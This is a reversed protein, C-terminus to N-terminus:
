VAQEVPMLVSLYAMSDPAPRTTVRRESVAKRHRAVVAAADLEVALAKARAILGRDGVGDLIAPDSCLRRDVIGRDAASLCATERVLLTARWENLRGTQLMALTHPMEHVLAQAFGLHRGGRNPSERRALAIQSAVGRDWEVRPLGAAKRDARISTAVGDTIVAQAACGVSKLAEIADLLDIGLGADGDASVVRLRAAFARLEDLDPAMLEGM